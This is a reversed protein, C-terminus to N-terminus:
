CCWRGDFLEAFGAEPGSHETGAIPHGPHFARGQARVPRCRARDRGKVSGVDDPHRGPSRPEADAKAIPGCAGVPACLIVLDAGRVAEAASAYVSTVLGLRL